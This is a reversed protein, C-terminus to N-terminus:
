RAEEEWRAMLISALEPPESGALLAALAPDDVPLRLLAALAPDDGSLRPLGAAAAQQQVARPPILLAVAPGAAAAAAGRGGARAALPAWWRARARAADRLLPSLESAIRQELGAWYARDEPLRSLERFDTM